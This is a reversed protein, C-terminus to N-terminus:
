LKLNKAKELGRLILTVAEGGDTTRLLKENDGHSLGNEFLSGLDHRGDEIVRCLADVAEAPRRANPPVRLQEFAEHLTAYGSVENRYFDLTFEKPRAANSKLLYRTLCGAAGGFGGLVYLPRRGRCELAFLAEEFIGPMIGTFQTTPGGLIVRANVRINKKLARAETIEIGEVMLRRMATLVVAKNFAIRLSSVGAEAGPLIERAEFGAMEQTIRIFKCSDIWDAEVEPTIDLYYPWPSHNYLKGIWPRSDATGEEQEASILQILERTFSERQFHGGYALDGTRRLISRCLAFFIERLHERGFGHALLDESESISIGIVTHDCLKSRHTGM